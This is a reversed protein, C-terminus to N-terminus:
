LNPINGTVPASRLQKYVKRGSRALSFLSDPCPLLHPRGQLHAEPLRQPQTETSSHVPCLWEPLSLPGPM